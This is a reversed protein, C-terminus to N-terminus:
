IQPGRLSSGKGFSCSMSLWQLCMMWSKPLGTNYTLLKKSRLGLSLISQWPKQSFIKLTKVVMLLITLMGKAMKYYLLHKDQRKELEGQTM